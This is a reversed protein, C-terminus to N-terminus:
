DFKDMIPSEHSHKIHTLIKEYKERFPESTEILNKFTNINHLVTTHDRPGIFQGISTCTYKMNRALHCFIMRLEVIERKRVKSSLSLQKGFLNPLFPEFYEGLQELSMLPISNEDVLLKTLVIPQYGVKEYFKEKFEDILKKELHAAYAVPKTM